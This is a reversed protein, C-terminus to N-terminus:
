KKAPVKVISGLLSETYSFVVLQGVSIKDLNEQHRPTVTFTRGDLGKLTVTGMAKDIATITAKYKTRQTISGSPKEGAKAQATSTETSTEPTGAEEITISLRERYSLKLVDGVHIQAFNKVQDGCTVTVTDGDQNKFTVRRTAKDVKLVTAEARVTDAAEFYPKGAKTGSKMAAAGALSPLAAVLVVCLVVWRKM